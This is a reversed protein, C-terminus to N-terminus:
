SHPNLDPTKKDRKQFGAYLGHGGGGPYYFTLLQCVPPRSHPQLPPLISTQFPQHNSPQLVPPSSIKGVQYLAKMWDFCTEAQDPFKPCWYLCKMVHSAKEKPRFDKYGAQCKSTKAAVAIVAKCNNSSTTSGRPLNLQLRTVNLREISATNKLVARGDCHYCLQM